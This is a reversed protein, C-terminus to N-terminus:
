RQAAIFQERLKFKRVKGSPTVPFDDVVVLYRPVKYRAVRSGLQERMEEETLSAGDALRV